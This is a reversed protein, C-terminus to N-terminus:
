NSSRFEQMGHDMDIHLGIQKCLQVSLLIVISQGSWIAQLPTRCWHEVVNGSTNKVFYFCLLYIRGM